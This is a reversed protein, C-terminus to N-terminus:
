SSSRVSKINKRHQDFDSAFIHQGNGNAVFFLKQTWQPHLVSLIAARGPNCIPTPPLGKYVYTNYESSSKLHSYLVRGDWKKTEVLNLGYIVTPDAQLRMNKQLRNLYVGAILPKERDIYTEKEIISALTVAEEPSSIIKDIKKDRKPWEIALFNQMMKQTRKIFDLDLTGYTYFYTEPLLSGERITITHPLHTFNDLQKIRELVQKVTFGEPIIIQHQIVKGATIIKMLDIIDSGSKLSYEGAIIQKNYVKCYLKAFCYFTTKRNIIKKNNLDQSIEKISTNKKIFFVSDQKINVTHFAYFIFGSIGITIVFTLVTLTSLIKYVISNFANSQIKM